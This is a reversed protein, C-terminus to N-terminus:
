TEILRHWSSGAARRDFTVTAECGAAHGRVGILYDAFDANGAQYTRLAVHANASDEVALEAASLLKSLVAVLIPKSYGYGRTLVWSLEALVLLSIFGPTEPTCQSEILRTAAATQKKDDRVIYRVLVNTDLGIM